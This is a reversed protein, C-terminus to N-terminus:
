FSVYTECNTLNPGGGLLKVEVDDEAPRRVAAADDLDSLVRLLLVKGPHHHGLRSQGGALLLDHHSLPAHLVDRGLLHEVQQLTGNVAHQGAQLQSQLVLAVGVGDGPVLEGGDSEDAGAISNM